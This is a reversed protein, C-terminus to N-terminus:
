SSRRHDGRRRCPSGAGIRDRLEDPTPARGAAPGCSARREGRGPAGLSTSRPAPSRSRPSRPRARVRRRRRVHRHRRDTVPVPQPRRCPRHHRRRAPRRGRGRRPQDRGRRRGRARPGRRAPVPEAASRHGLQRGARPPGNGGIPEGDRRAALGYGTVQGEATPSATSAGPGTPGAVRRHLAATTTSRASPERDTRTACSSTPAPRCRPSCGTSTPRSRTASCWPAPWSRSASSSPSRRHRRLRRRRAWLSTLSLRLM